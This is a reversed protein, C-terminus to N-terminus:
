AKRQNISKPLGWVSGAAIALCIAALFYFVFNYDFPWGVTANSTAAFISGVVVPAFMRAFAATSASMGNVAGSTQSDSANSVLLNVSAFGTTACSAKMMMVFGMFTWVLGKTGAMHTALPAIACIPTLVAMSTTLTYRTGLAKDLPVYGVLQMLIAGVGSIAHATGLQLTTFNVGGEAIPLIAWFAFVEEYGLIVFSVGSYLIISIIVDRQQLAKGFLYLRSRLQRWFIYLESRKSRKKHIITSDSGVPRPIEPNLVVAAADLCDLDSDISGAHNYGVTTNSNNLINSSTNSSTNSTTNESTSSTELGLSDTPDAVHESAPLANASSVTAMEVENDEYEDYPVIKLTEQLYLYSMLLSMGTVAASALCPLLFPYHAWIGTSSFVSPYQVAPRALAGGLVPGIIAGISYGASRLTYCRAQNTEDTIERIYSKIVGINGNILGCLFRSLLALWFVRSVGFILTTILNGSMGILMIIRRGKIDSLQGMFVSSFIQAGFYASTLWGGYYGVQSSPYGFLDTIM